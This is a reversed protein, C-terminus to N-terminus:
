FGSARWPFRSLPEGLKEWVALSMKNSMHHLAQSTSDVQDDYKTGPFGTLEKVYADLWSAETPLYVKGAEFHVTQSNLRMIKDFGALPEYPIIGFMCDNKLDQILNTGSAKDEILIKPNRYKKAQEVITRKLEPYEMRKRIVDILYYKDRLYGWVTGVSYDNIEKAKSATDWSILISIFEKPWDIASCHQLWETKIIGGDLPIPNQQYQASFNYSTMGKKLNELTVLSERAADLLDGPKRTYIRTGFPNEIVHTEDEEAIAPFSVIDWDEQELVHGVLDDQHLRQMVIIICGTNKDNLRTRLTNDYWGQVSKRVSESLAEEPKQPDDIILFDGGRGTLVGGLSTAMRVGKATTMFDNLASRSLRTPFVNKYFTSNM